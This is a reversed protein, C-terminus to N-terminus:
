FTLAISVEIQSNRSQTSNQDFVRGQWRTYRVEPTVRINVGDLFKFGLGAVTGTTNRRAPTVPVYSTSTVAATNVATYSNTTTTTVSSIKRFAVGGAVYLHSLIGHPRLGTYRLMAPFDLQRAKVSATAKTVNTGATGGATVIQDDERVEQYRVHHFTGEGVLTLHKYIPFELVLGVAVRSSQGTTTFTTTTTGSSSTILGAGIDPQLSGPIRFGFTVFKLGSPGAPFSKPKEPAPFNSATSSDPTGQPATTSPPPTSQTGPPAQAELLFPLVFITVSTFLARLACSNAPIM